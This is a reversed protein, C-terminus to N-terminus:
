NQLSDAKRVLAAGLEFAKYFAPLALWELGSHFNHGGTFLNPCPIGMESLRAGDTGGRVSEIRPEIGTEEMTKVLFDILFSPIMSKMNRYQYETRMEIRSGPYKKETSAALDHLFAIREEIKKEDFDRLLVTLVAHGVEGSASIPCYYGERDETTEPKEAPPLAAILSAAVDVANTLKGKAQGLHIVKGTIRFTVSVAHFCEYEAEGLTGGDFTFAYKPSFSDLPPNEMGRGVEEDTTFMFYLPGHETKEFVTKRILGLLIAVGAKDDAGLLTDGSSTILDGGKFRLLDPFDVPSLIAGNELRVTGGRYNRVIRPVVGEGNCDPATDVHALFGIAVTKEKGECPPLYLTLYGNEHLVPTLGWSFLLSALRELLRIQGESTPKELSDASSTSPSKALSVFMNLLFRRDSETIEM